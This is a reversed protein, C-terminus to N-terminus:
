IQVTSKLYTLKADLVLEPEPTPEFQVPPLSQDRIRVHVDTPRMDDRNQYYSTNEETRV